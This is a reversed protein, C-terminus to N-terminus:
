RRFATRAPMKPATKSSPARPMAALRHCAMAGARADVVRTTIAGGRAWLVLAHGDEGWAVAGAGVEDEVDVEGGAAEAGEVEADGWWAEM